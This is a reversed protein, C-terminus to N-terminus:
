VKVTIDPPKLEMVKDESIYPGYRGGSNHSDAMEPM